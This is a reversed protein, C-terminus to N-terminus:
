INTSRSIHDLLAKKLKEDELGRVKTDGYAFRTFQPLQAISKMLKESGVTPEIVKDWLEILKKTAPAYNVTKAISNPLSPTVLVIASRARKLTTKASFFTKIVPIDGILPTKSEAEDAVSESLGSLILTEGFKVDATATLNQKFTGIAQTFTGTNTDSLFSRDVELQFRAGDVRIQDPLLKLSIGVDIKEIQASQIGAVNVNLQDGIFFRSPQGVFATLSPRAIADYYRDSHNFINLNYRVDPISISRTIVRSTNNNDPVGTQSDSTSTFGRSYGFSGTLGDLLNLGTRGSDRRDSLILTVDVTVQKPESSSVAEQINEAPNSLPEGAGNLAVKQYSDLYTTRLLNQTRTNLWDQQQENVPSPKHNLVEKLKAANGQAALSLALMRWAIVSDPQLHLARNASQEALGLYGSAYAASALGEFVYANDPSAFAAKSFHELAQRPDQKQMAVLGALYNPWMNQGAFQSSTNYGSNALDLSAADGLAHYCIGLLMHSTASKPDDLVLEEALSKAKDIQGVSVLEIIEQRKNQSFSSQSVNFQDVSGTKSPLEACGSLCYIAILFPIHKRALHNM